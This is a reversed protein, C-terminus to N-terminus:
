RIGGNKTQAATTNLNPDNFPLLRHNPVPKSCTRTIVDHSFILNTLDKDHNQVGLKVVTCPPGTRGVLM